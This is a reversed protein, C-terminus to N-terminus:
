PLFVGFFYNSTTNSFTVIGVGGSVAVRTASYPATPITKTYVPNLPASIDFVRIGYIGDAAYLYGNYVAVDSISSLAAITLVRSPSAPNSIDLVPMGYTYDPIYAATGSLIVRDHGVNNWCNTGAYLISPSAPNTVDITTLSSFNTDNNCSMFILNGSKALQGNTPITVSGLISPQPQSSTDIVNLTMPFNSQSAYATNGELIIGGTAMSLHSKLAPNTPDTVDYTYLDGAYGTIDCWGTCVFASSILIMNNSISIDYIDTADMQTADADGLTSLVAPVAPTSVDIIRLSGDAIYAVDNQLALTYPHYSTSFNLMSIIKGHEIVSVAYTQTSSDAATVTYIVPLAFDNATVGSIQATSGVNVGVGTTTFTAVLATYDTGDPLTVYIVKASKNIIGAVGNISYSTIDKQASLTVTVTYNVTSSDAATVTYVVPNTFNNATTGSVQATTGVTVSVGTTTFTAVLATVDTPLPMTVSITKASQDITGPVGNISYGTIAKASSLAVTVTVTYNVTSSDAATVTYVVPNTFNNATTGSIQATTGVTVSVGTTTFTAVLATVDTGYPMVAKITKTTENIIGPVGNLSYGTIAKASSEAVTVTVTYSATSSDAATVTYVVPNAFDNATTGSTQTNTGVTVSAGTTTFTAVLATVDTGYPMVATITKASEDIIGPVGNLSYGTIAKASSPSSTSDSKSSCGNIFSQSFILIIFLSIFIRTARM